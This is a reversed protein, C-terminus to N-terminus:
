PHTQYVPLRRPRLTRKTMAAVRLIVKWRADPQCIYDLRLSTRQFAFGQGNICTNKPKRSQKAYCRTEDHRESCSKIKGTFVKCVKSQEVASEQLSM